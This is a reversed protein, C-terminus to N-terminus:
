AVSPLVPLGAARQANVLMQDLDSAKDNHVAPFFKEPTLAPDFGLKWWAGIFCYAVARRSNPDCPYGRTDLAAYKRCWRHPNERFFRVVELTYLQTKTLPKSM